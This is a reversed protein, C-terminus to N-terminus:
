KKVGRDNMERRVNGIDIIALQVQGRVAAVETKVVDISQQVLKQNAEDLKAKYEDIKIQDTQSQRIIAIDTRLASTAVWFAGSTGIIGAVILIVLQLPFTLKSADTQRRNQEDRSPTVEGHAWSGEDGFHLDRTETLLAAHTM